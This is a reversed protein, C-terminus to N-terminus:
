HSRWSKCFLMRVHQGMKGGKGKANSDLHVIGEDNTRGKGQGGGKGRKRRKCHGPVMGKRTSRMLLHVARMARANEAIRAREADVYVSSGIAAIHICGLVDDHSYDVAVPCFVFLARAM